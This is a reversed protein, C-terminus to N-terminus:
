PVRFGCPNEPEKNKMRRILVAPEGEVARFRPDVGLGEAAFVAGNMTFVVLRDRETPPINRDVCLRKLSRSRGNELRLRDGSQWPRVLINSHAIMDYKIAFQFPTNRNKKFNETFECFIRRDDGNLVTEGDLKLTTESFTMPVARTIELLEYRRRALIGGPLSLEATPNRVLLLKQLAEIHVLAVDQPLFERLMLRFARKQLPDPAELLREIVYCGNEVQLFRAAQGDLFADEARLLVTRETIRESLQPALEYLRPMVEHRLRNRLCEGEANTSDERWPLEEARLYERIQARTVSLLPRVIRGRKPPIGCIGRLGSGRLLHLLVTEANDDAHHATAILDAEARDLFAYRLDRAAEELTRGKQEARVDASGVTLPINYKECFARVFAEDGDSEAGRLRHNFHAATVTIELETQLSHLCWLMAMSDAGGSVACCVRAGAPFLENRRCWARVRDLM